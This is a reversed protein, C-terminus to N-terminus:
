WPARDIQVEGAVGEAVERVEGGMPVAALWVGVRRGAVGVEGRHVVRGREKLSAWTGGSCPYMLCCIVRETEALNAYALVQLLDQRHQERVVEDVRFWGSDELEEWHRKYKADVIVTCGEMQLVVDPVLSRQSGAWAPAWEIPTVTQRQRGTRMVGGTLRSVERMVTEVWAEFFEEMPLTWPLGDLDSLGALGREEMTWDIAQLGEVWSEKRLPRHIWGDMERATPQVAPVDRVGQLIEEGMAVLRHVFAGQERQTELSRLQREVAYRIAGKMRRDDRLDSYRCPVELFRGRAMGRTAYEGWAVQGKPARLTAESMEFRRELDEVFTRLRALVLFSLVWPPVRRESRRMLPLRLPTPAVRWGMEALMPGIGAWPFRPQVVLGYEPRGSKPSLLPIAGVRNGSEMRLWVDRGDYDRQVKVGALEFWARNQNLFQETLRAAQAEVGRGGDLGFLRVASREVVSHDRLELCVEPAREVLRLPSARGGARKKLPKGAM